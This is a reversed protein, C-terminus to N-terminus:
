TGAWITSVSCGGDLACICGGSIGFDAVGDAGFRLRCDTEGGDGITSVSCGGGFVCIWGGSIGFDAVGDVDFCLQGATALANVSM